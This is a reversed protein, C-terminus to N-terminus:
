RSSRRKEDALEIERAIAGACETHWHQHFSDRGMRQVLVHEQGIEIAGKCGPCVYLNKAIILKLTVPVGDLDTGSVPHKRTPLRAM